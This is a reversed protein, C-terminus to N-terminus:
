LNSEYNIQYCNNINFECAENYGTELILYFNTACADCNSHGLVIIPEGNIPLLKIGVGEVREFYRGEKPHNFDFLLGDFDEVKFVGFDLYQDEWYLQENEGYLVFGNDFILNGLDVSKVKAIAM